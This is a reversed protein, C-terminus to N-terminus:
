KNSKRKRIYWLKWPTDKGGYVCCVEWEAALEIGLSVMTAFVKGVYRLSRSAM